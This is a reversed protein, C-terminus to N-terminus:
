LTKEAAALLRRARELVPRDVMEGDVVAVGEDAGSTLVRRAWDLQDVSPRLVAAVVDVQRPHVCLKGAFGLRAAYAVDSELTARDDVAPTVGDIPPALGAAASALVLAGRAAAMADRDEPAVGLEAALDFTGLALRRVGGTAAVGAAHVVGAATEVLAVMPHEPGLVSSVCAVASLTARPLMVAVGVDRVLDLDDAHWSTGVANIRVVCPRGTDLWEAVARRAGVKAAPVVADELDLVVLDAGSAVAKDFREPRDGPVFLLTRAAAVQEILEPAV